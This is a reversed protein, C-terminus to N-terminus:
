FTLVEGNKLFRLNPNEMAEVEAEIRPKHRPKLHYLAVPTDPREFKVLEDKLTAPTYHKAANAVEQHTHPFALEVLFGKINKYSKCIQWLRETPGTDGSIVIATTSDEVIFGVTPVTHDVRVPLVSVEGFVYQKEPEIDHLRYFPDQPSPIRTFDPWIAYNFFHKRLIRNVEPLAHITVGETEGFLNDALFGLDRIHDLHAHTLLVDTVKRQADIDLGTCASGADILLSEHVQFCTTESGPAVGGDCGVVRIKM